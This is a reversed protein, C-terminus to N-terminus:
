FQRKRGAEDVDSLRRVGIHVRRELPLVRVGFPPRATIEWRLDVVIWRDPGRDWFVITDTPGPLPGSWERSLLTSDEEPDSDVDYFIAVPVRVATV